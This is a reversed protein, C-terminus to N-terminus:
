RKCTVTIGEQGDVFWGKRAKGTELLSVLRDVGWVTRTARLDDSRGRFRFLPADFVRRDVDRGCKM